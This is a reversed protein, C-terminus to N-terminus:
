MIEKPVPMCVTSLEAYPEEGEGERIVIDCYAVPKGRRKVIYWVRPKEEPSVYFLKRNTREVEYGKKELNRKIYEFAEELIKRENFLLEKSFREWDMPKAPEIYGLVVWDGKEFVDEPHGSTETGEEVVDVRLNRVKFPNIWLACINRIFETLRV